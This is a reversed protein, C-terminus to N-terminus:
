LFLRFCYIIIDAFLHFNMCASALTSYANYILPLSNVMLM